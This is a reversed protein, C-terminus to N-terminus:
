VIEKLNKSVEFSIKPVQPGYWKVCIKEGLIHLIVGEGLSPKWKRKVRDGTKM